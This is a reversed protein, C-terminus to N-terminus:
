DDLKDYSDGNFTLDKGKCLWSMLEVLNGSKPQMLKEVHGDAFAINACRKKGSRHNFTIAEEMGSCGSLDEYQVATDCYEDKSVELSVADKNAVSQNTFPVETFLLRRDALKLKSQNVGSYDDDVTKGEMAVDGGFYGSMEYSWWPKKGASQALRRHSPCIYVDLNEGICNYMTGNTICYLQEDDNTGYINAYSGKNKWSIWGRKEGEMVQANQIGQSEDVYTYTISTALPYHLNRMAYSTCGAALNRLNSMCKAAKASDTGNNMSVFLVSALIAIIGIVVLLEVLTFAKKMKM